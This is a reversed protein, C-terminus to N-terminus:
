RLYYGWLTRNIKARREVDSGMQEAALHRGTFPKLRLNGRRACVLSGFPSSPRPSFRGPPQGESCHAKIGAGGGFGRSARRADRRGM